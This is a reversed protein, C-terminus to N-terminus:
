KTVIVILGLVPVAIVIVKLHNKKSTHDLSTDTFSLQNAVTAQAWFVRHVVVNYM